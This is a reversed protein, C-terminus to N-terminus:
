FSHRYSLSVAKIDKNNYIIAPKASGSEPGPIDILGTFRLGLFNNNDMRYELELRALWVFGSNKASAFCNCGGTFGMGPMKAEGMGIGLGANIQWAESLQFHRYGNLTIARYRGTKSQSEQLSNLIISTADFNGQQYELEWRYKEYVRGIEMGYAMGNDLEATGDFAINNGLDVTGDWSDLDHLGASLTMYTQPENSVEQGFALGAFGSCFLVVLIGAIKMINIGTRNNFALILALLLM